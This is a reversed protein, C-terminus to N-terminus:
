LRYMKKKNKKVKKKKKLMGIVKRQIGLGDLKEIM